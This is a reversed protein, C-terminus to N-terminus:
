RPLDNWNLLANYLFRFDSLNLYRYLPNFAFLLVRGKGAPLDLIAPKGNVESENKVLGSLVLRDDEKKEEKPNAAVPAAPRSPADLEEVEIGSAPTKEKKEDEEGEPKRTGFQMVVRSRGSKPVNFGPSSGLFVQTLEPYGYVLPHEPRLVKARLVSGSTNARNFGAESVGRVLGAAVPLRGSDAVAILLGGGELFRQLNLLGVFGMGGTIDESADPVGQSPFEATRTYALPGLKPDIGHVLEAFDGSTEPYLIVDFREALNGRKLDDDNILTYPVKARDLTYRAWGADQTDIWNHLIALRPLDVLHRRVDPISATATFSLGTRFAVGAVVERPAQVIWSGPPYTVGGATFAAEAADVQNTGLLVRADLLATQGTDRLLFVDGAGDVTGAPAVDATLLEMPAELVHKDAVPDGAV